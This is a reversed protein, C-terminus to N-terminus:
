KNYKRRTLRLGLLGGGLLLITGPVPVPVDFNAVSVEMGSVYFQEPMAGGFGLTFTTGGILSIGTLSNSVLANLNSQGNYNKSTPNTASDQPAYGNGPVLTSVGNIEVTEPNQIRGSPNPDHTNNLWLNDIILKTNSLNGFNSFVFTLIEDGLTAGGFGTVNDDSSPACQFNSNLGGCVGLGAHGADFYAFETKEDSQGQYGAYVTLDFGVGNFVYSSFGREGVNLPNTIGGAYAKDAMSTFDIIEGAQASSGALVLAMVKAAKMLSSTAKM